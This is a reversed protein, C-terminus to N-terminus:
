QNKILFTEKYILYRGERFNHIVGGVVKQYGKAYQCYIKYKNHVYASLSYDISNFVRELLQSWLVLDSPALQVPLQADYTM